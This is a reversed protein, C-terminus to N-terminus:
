VCNLIVSKTIIVPTKMIMQNLHAKLLILYNGRPKYPLIIGIEQLTADSNRVYGIPLHHRNTTLKDTSLVQSWRPISRSQEVHIIKMACSIHHDAFPFHIRNNNLLHTIRGDTHRTRVSPLIVPVVIDRSKVM